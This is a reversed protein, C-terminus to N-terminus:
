VQEELQEEEGREGGSIGDVYCARSWNRTHGFISKTGQSGYKRKIISRVSDRALGYRRAIDSYSCGMDVMKKIKANRDAREAEPLWRHSVKGEEGVEGDVVM